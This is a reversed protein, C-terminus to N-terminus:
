RFSEAWVRLGCMVAEVYITAYVFVMTEPSWRPNYALVFRSWRAIEWASM